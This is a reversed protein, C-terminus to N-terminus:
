PLDHALLWGPGPNWVIRFFTIRRMRPIPQDGYEQAIIYKVFGLHDPM